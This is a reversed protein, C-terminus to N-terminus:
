VKHKLCFGFILLFSSQYSTYIKKVLIVVTLTSLARFVPILTMRDCCGRCPMPDFDLPPIVLPGAVLLSYLILNNTVETM